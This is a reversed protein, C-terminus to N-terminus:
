HVDKVARACAQVVKEVAESMPMELFCGSALVHGGGGFIAAIKSVDVKKSRFSVKIRDDEEKFLLGIEVGDISKPYYVLGETDGPRAGCEDLMAKTVTIYAITGDEVVNLTSIAKGILLVQNLTKKEFIEEAIKRLDAGNNLLDGAIEHTISTTNSYMFRGTDTALSCYLCTSIDSDFEVGLLKLLQYVLEASAGANSDVVNYDAYMTNSIHHDINIKVPLRMYLEKVNGMREEDSCDIAVAVDYYGDMEHPYRLIKGSQPLFAFGEPVEDDIVVHGEIGLQNLGHLLALTSGIGDGDPSVHTVILVKKASKLLKVIESMVM